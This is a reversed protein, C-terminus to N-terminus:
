RSFSLRKTWSDALRIVLLVLIVSMYMLAEAEWVKQVMIFHVGALLTAPYALKHLTRWSASGMKRISWNNSTIAMPVLLVASIMGITIYPRKLIDSWMQQWLLGMDLVVWILLHLVVYIFALLGLARRFCILNIRAWKMLPTIALAAILFQLAIEGFEHELVKIPDVGLQGQVAAVMLLVAPVLGALYVVWNPVRRAASNISNAIQRM